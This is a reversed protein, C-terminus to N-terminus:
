FRSPELWTVSTMADSGVASLSLVSVSEASVSLWGAAYYHLVSFSRTFAFNEGEAAQPRCSGRLPLRSFLAAFGGSELIDFFM